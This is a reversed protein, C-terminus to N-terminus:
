DNRGPIEGELSEKVTNLAARLSYYSAKKLSKSVTPQGIGLAKATLYQNKGNAFYERVIEAQRETWKSIVVTCLSLVSNRMEDLKLTNEGSYIMFNTYIEEYGGNRRKIEEIAKRARHYASGDIKVSNDYVIDTSIEGVGVGFRLCIPLMELVIFSIIDVSTRKDRVLGQLEDGLTIMFKSALSKEYKKNVVDLVSQLKLQVAQRNEIKRSEIIDGIVAVYNWEASKQKM